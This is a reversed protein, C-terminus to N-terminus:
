GRHARGPEGLGGVLRPVAFRVYRPTGGRGAVAANLRAPSTADGWRGTDLRHELAHLAAITEAPQFACHGSGRLYSQRLLRASGAKAVKKAYWNQNEVPVIPDATTHVNLVPVRLAGTVTSTRALKRVARPDAKIGTGRTLAALDKDLDLGALRYLRRVQRARVSSKLLARYDVGVNFSSNGGAALEIQQRAGTFQAFRGDM